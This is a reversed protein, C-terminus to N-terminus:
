GLYWPPAWRVWVVCGDMVRALHALACGLPSSRKSVGLGVRFPSARTLAGGVMAERRSSSTGRFFHDSDRNHQVFPIRSVLDFSPLVTTFTGAGHVLGFALSTRVTGLGCVWADWGCFGRGYVGEEDEPKVDEEMKGNKLGFFIQM